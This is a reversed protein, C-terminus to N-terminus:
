LLGGVEEQTLAAHHAEEAEVLLHWSSSTLPHEVREAEPEAVWEVDVLYHHIRDRDINQAAARFTKVVLEALEKHGLVVIASHPFPLLRCTHHLGALEVYAVEEEKRYFQM